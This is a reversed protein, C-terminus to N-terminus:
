NERIITEYMMIGHTYLVMAGRGPLPTGVDNCVYGEIRTDTENEPVIFMITGTMLTVKYIKKAM